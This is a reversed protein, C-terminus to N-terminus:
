PNPGGQSNLFEAKRELVKQLIKHNMQLNQDRRIRIHDEGFHFSISDSNFFTLNRFPIIWTYRAYKINFHFLLGEPRLEINTYILGPAKDFVAKFVESYEDVIMRHSGVAGKSLREMLTIPPGVMDKILLKVEKTM